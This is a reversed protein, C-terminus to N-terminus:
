FDEVRRRRGVNIKFWIFSMLNIEMNPPLSLTHYM